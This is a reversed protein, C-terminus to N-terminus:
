KRWKRSSAFHRDALFMACDFAQACFGVRKTLVRAGWATPSVGPGAADDCWGVAAAWPGGFMRDFVRRSEVMVLAM